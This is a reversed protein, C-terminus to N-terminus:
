FFQYVKIFCINHVIRYYCKGHRGILRHFGVQCSRWLPYGKFQLQFTLAVGHYVYGDDDAAFLDAGAIYTLHGTRMVVVM